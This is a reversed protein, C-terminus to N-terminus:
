RQKQVVKQVKSQAAANGCYCHWNRGISSASNFTHHLFSCHYCGVHSLLATPCSSSPCLSLLFHYAYLLPLYVMSIHLLYTYGDLFYKPFDYLHM